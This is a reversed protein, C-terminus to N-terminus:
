SVAITQGWRASATSIYSWRIVGAKSSRQQRCCVIAVSGVGVNLAHEEYAALVAADSERQGKQAPSDDLGWYLLANVDIWLIVEM